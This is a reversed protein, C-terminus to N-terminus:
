MVSIQMAATRVATVITAWCLINMMELRLRRRRWGRAQSRKRTRRMMCKETSMSGATWFRDSVTSEMSNGAVTVKMGVCYVVVFALFLALLVRVAFLVVTKTATLSVRKKRRRFNLGKSRFVPM